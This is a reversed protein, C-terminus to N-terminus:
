AQMAQARQRECRFYAQVERWNAVRPYGTDHHNHYSYFLLGTGNFGALNHVKDDIMYDGHVVSKNGCLVIRRHHIFPFHEELWEWKDRLSNKFETATTVVYVEYNDYLERVVEPADAMVPVDRFFGEEFMMRRLDAHGPDAEYVKHGRLREPPLRRGTREEYAAHFKEYTDAMVEDMDIIIRPM